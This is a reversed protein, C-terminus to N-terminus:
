FITKELEVAFNICDALGNIKKLDTEALERKANELWELLELLYWEGFLLAFNQKMQEANEYTGFLDIKINRM